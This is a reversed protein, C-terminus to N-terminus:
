RQVHSNTRCYISVVYELYLGSIRACRSGARARIYGLGGLLWKTIKISCFWEKSKTAQTAEILVSIFQDKSVLVYGASREYCIM